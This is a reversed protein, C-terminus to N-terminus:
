AILRAAYSKRIADEADDIYRKIASKPNEMDVRLMAYSSCGALVNRGESEYSGSFTLFGDRERIQITAVKPGVATEYTKQFTDALKRRFSVVNEFGAEHLMKEAIHVIKKEM